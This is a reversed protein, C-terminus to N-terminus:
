PAQKLRCPGVADSETGHLSIPQPDGHGDVWRVEWTGRLRDGDVRSRILRGGFRWWLYTLMRQLGTLRPAETSRLDAASATLLNGRTALLSAAKAGSTPWRREVAEFAPGLLPCRAAKLLAPVPFSLKAALAPSLSNGWGLESSFSEQNISPFTCGLTRWGSEGGEEEEGM